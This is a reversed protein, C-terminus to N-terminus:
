NNNLITFLTLVIDLLVEQKLIRPTTVEPFCDKIIELISHVELVLLEGLFQIKDEDSLSTLENIAKDRIEIYTLNNGETYSLKLKKYSNVIFDQFMSIQVITPKIYKVELQTTPLTITEQINYFNSTNINKTVTKTVM